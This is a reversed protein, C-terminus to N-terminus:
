TAPASASSWRWKPRARSSRRRARRAAGDHRGPGIIATPAKHFANIPAPEKRTGDEMYNVAMCVINGPKPLPPRLKCARCRCARAARRRTRSGSASIRRLARDPRQDPRAPGLHPIDRVASSVDVITDGKVVGLKYDDFYHLKMNTGEIRDSRLDLPPDQRRGVEVPPGQRHHGRGPRGRRRRDSRAEGDSATIQVGADLNIIYQRRPAPHWALDYDGSTERFIIGTAPLRTSLKGSDREEVWEVEIDRWHSQGNADCYLNHIRM